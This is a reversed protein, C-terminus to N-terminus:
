RSDLFLSESVVGHLVNTTTWSDEISFLRSIYLLGCVLILSAIYSVQVFPGSMWDVNRNNFLDYDTKGQTFSESYTRELSTTAM